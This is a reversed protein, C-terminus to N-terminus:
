CLDLKTARKKPKESPTGELMHWVSEFYLYGIKLLLLGYIRVSGTSNRHEPNLFLSQVLLRRHAHRRVGQRLIIFRWRDLLFTRTQIQPKPYLAQSCQDRYSSDIRVRFHDQRSM